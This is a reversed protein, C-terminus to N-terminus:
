PFYKMGTKKLEKLTYLTQYDEYTIRAKLEGVIGAAEDESRAHVMTYLNYRWVDSRVRRYCHSVSDHRALERGMEEAREDDVDWVVMVNCSYGVKTHFLAIGVRRLYKKEKLRATRDMVEREAVGLAAAVDAFPRRSVPFDVSLAHIIKKDLADLSM